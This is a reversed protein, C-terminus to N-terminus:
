CVCFAHVLLKREISGGKKREEAVVKWAEIFHLAIEEEEEEEEDFYTLEEISSRQIRGPTPM